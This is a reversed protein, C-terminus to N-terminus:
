ETKEEKRSEVGRTYRLSSAVDSEQRGEGEGKEGQPSEREAEKEPEGKKLTELNTM